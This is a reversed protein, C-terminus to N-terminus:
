NSTMPKKHCLKNLRVDQDTRVNLSNLRFVKTFSTKENMCISLLSHMINGKFIGEGHYPESPLFLLDLTRYLLIFIVNGSQTSSSFIM